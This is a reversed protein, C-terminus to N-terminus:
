PRKGFNLSDIGLQLIIPDFVSVITALLSLVAGFAIIRRFRGLYGAMRGLLVRIPRSRKHKGGMMRRPGHGRMGM